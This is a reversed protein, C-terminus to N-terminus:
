YAQGTLHPKFTLTHTYFPLEVARQYEVDIILRNQRRLVQVRVQDPKLDLDYEKGIDIVAQQIFEVPQNRYYPVMDSMRSEFANYHYYPIVFNYAVFGAVVMLFLSFICGFKGEGRANGLRGPLYGSGPPRTSNKEKGKVSREKRL